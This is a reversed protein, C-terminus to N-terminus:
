KRTKKHLEKMLFSKLKPNNDISQVGTKSELLPDENPPKFVYRAVRRYSLIYGIENSLRM